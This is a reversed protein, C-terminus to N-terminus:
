LSVKHEYTMAIIAKFPAFIENDDLAGLVAIWHIIVEVLYREMVPDTTTLIVNSLLERSKYQKALQPIYIYIYLYYDLYCHYVKAHSRLAQHM